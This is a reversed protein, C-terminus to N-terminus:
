EERRVPHVTSHDSLHRPSEAGSPGVTAVPPDQGGAGERPPTQDGTPGASQEARVWINWAFRWGVLFAVSGLAVILLRWENAAPPPVLFTVLASAGVALLAVVSMRAGRFAATLSMWTVIGFRRDAAEVVFLKYPVATLPQYILGSPGRDLWKHVRTRMSPTTVPLPWRLGYRWLVLGLAGGVTSGLVVMVLGVAALEPFLFVVAALAADPVIPWSFAEGLAWLFLVVFTSITLPDMM